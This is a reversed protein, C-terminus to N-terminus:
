APSEVVLARQRNNRVRQMASIATLRNLDGGVVRRGLTHAVLATTGSGIFPDIISEGERTLSLIIRKLYRIPLQNDHGNPRHRSKWRETNNGTIRSFGEGQWVDLPPRMGDIGQKKNLTRCDGYISARDSPELVHCTDIRRIDRCFILCHQHSQIFNRAQCQGFRYHWIVWRAHQFGLAKMSVVIEAAINDYVNVVMAGDPTLVQAAATLWRDTWLVYDRFPLRDNIGDGYDRGINFPPDAFVLQFRQGKRELHELLPIAGSRYIVASGKDLMGVVAPKKSM